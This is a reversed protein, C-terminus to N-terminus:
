RAKQPFIMNGPRMGRRRCAELYLKAYSATIYATSDRGLRRATRDIWQRPGELELFVGIPTEDFCITGKQGKGRLRPAYTTRFKQYRFVERLGVAKLLALLRKVTKAEIEFEVERRIKYRRSPQPPGKLTLLYRGNESRLRLLINAKTLSRDDFDFLVNNEFRRRGVVQFGLRRLRTPAAESPQVGLKIETETLAGSSGAKM